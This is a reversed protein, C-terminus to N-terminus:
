VNKSRNRYFLCWIPKRTQSIQPYPYSEEFARNKSLKERKTSSTWKLLIDGKTASKQSCDDCFNLLRLELSLIQIISGIYTDRLDNSGFNKLRMPLETWGLFNKDYDTIKMSRRIMHCIINTIQQSETFRSDSGYIRCPRIRIVFGFYSNQTLSDRDRIWIM